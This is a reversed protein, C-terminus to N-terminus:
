QRKLYDHWQKTLDGSGKFLMGYSNALADDFNGTKSYSQCLINFRERGYREILFTVISLSQAFWRHINYKNDHTLAEAMIIDEISLFDEKKLLSLQNEMLVILKSRVFRSEEYTALGESLWRMNEPIYQRKLFHYFLLHTLEHHILGELNVGEYSYFSNKGYIVKGVSWGSQRIKSSYEDRDKFIFIKIKKNILINYKLDMLLSNLTREIMDAIEDCIEENRAYINFHKTERSCYVGNSLIPSEGREKQFVYSEQFLVGGYITSSKRVPYISIDLSSNNNIINSDNSSEFDNKLEYLIRMQDMVNTNHDDIERIRKFLYSIYFVYFILVSSLLLLVILKTSNRKM